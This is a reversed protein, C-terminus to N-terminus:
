KEEREVWTNKYYDVQGNDKEVKTLETYYKFNGDSYSSINVEKITGEKPLEITM